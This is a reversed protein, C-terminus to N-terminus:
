CRPHVTYETLGAQMTVERRTLFDMLGGGRLCRRCGWSHPHPVTWPGARIAGCASALSAQPKEACAHVSSRRTTPRRRGRAGGQRVQVRRWVVRRGGARAQASGGEAGAPVLTGGGIGAGIAGRSLRGGTLSSLQGSIPPHYYAGWLCITALPYAPRSRSTRTSAHLLTNSPHPSFPFPIGHEHIKRM